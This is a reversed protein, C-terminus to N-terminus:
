YTFCNDIYFENASDANEITLIIQDIVDKNADAVGSIDWEVNQWVGTSAINPTNATTTGGSDHISVKINSGTRSESRIDFKIIGQGSLDIEPSVTRILTDALSNTSAVAKLSYSGQTKHTSESYSQLSTEYIRFTLDSSETGWSAGGDQSTAITGNAYPEDNDKRPRWASGTAQNDCGLVLWYTGAPLTFQVAFSQKNWNTVVPSFSLTANVNALVGSPLGVSDTEIRYTVDGAPSGVSLGFMQSAASILSEKSLLFSQAARYEIDGDDGLTYQNGYTSQEILVTGTTDSTVYANTAAADTAYEFYDLELFELIIKGALVTIKGDIIPIHYLTAWGVCAVLVCGAIIIKKIMKGILTQRTRGRCSYLILETKTKSTTRLLALISQGTLRFGSTTQRKSIIWM